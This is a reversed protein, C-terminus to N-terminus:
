EEKTVLIMEQLLDFAKLWQRKKKSFDIIEKKISDIYEINQTGPAKVVGLAKLTESLSEKHFKSVNLTLSKEIDNNLQAMFEKHSHLGIDVAHVYFFENYLFFDTVLISLIWKFKNVSMGHLNIMEVINQVVDLSFTIANTVDM